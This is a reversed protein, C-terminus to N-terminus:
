KDTETNTGSEDTDTGKNIFGTDFYFPLCLESHEPASGNLKTKIIKFVAPFGIIKDVTRTKEKGTSDFYFEKEKKTPADAKSGKRMYLILTSWHRLAKGGSLDELAIFGGLNMRVQAILLVEIRGRHIYGASMRLFKSLKRALLAYEDEAVSKEVGKKTENEARPSLAQVSDLAIFDIAKSASLRIIIDLAEEADKVEDVLILEKLNVGFQKAREENFSREMDILVATGGKNQVYAIKMYVLTTKGVGDGGFLVSFNGFLTGGGLFTDLRDVGFPSRTKGEYENAFRISEKGFDKCLSSMVEKLKEKRENKKM